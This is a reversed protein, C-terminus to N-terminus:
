EEKEYVPVAFRLGATAPDVPRQACRQCPTARHEAVLSPFERLLSAAMIAAGDLTACAGRGRLTVSWRELRTLVDDPASGDAISRVADAIASTGNICAGCQKANERALYGLVEAAVTVPCDHEGLVTIAGCGLGSGLERLADYDLATRGREPTLVGGFFGGMLYGRCGDVLGATSNVADELSGGLAVEYLGPRRCAGSVTLLCTGTSTASGLERFARAGHRAIWAVHALTEVNCVATPHGGVGAEFPRPPKATPKPEGGDIRRVASTEEGAVYGHEVVVVDVQVPVPPRETLADAVSAAAQADSLYVYIRRAAIARAADLAGDLVLHPRRRLLWRDKCSAPEGEEGNVVLVRPGRRDRVARLKRGTPFAAGGRGRLAARDVEELLRDGALAPLHGLAAQYEEHDERERVSLLRARIGVTMADPAPAPAPRVHSHGDQAPDGTRCSAM